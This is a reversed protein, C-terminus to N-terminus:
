ESYIRRSHKPARNGGRLAVSSYSRMAPNVPNEVITGESDLVVHEYRMTDFVMKLGASALKPEPIPTQLGPDQYSPDFRFIEKATTKLMDQQEVITVVNDQLKSVTDMTVGGAPSYVTKILKTTDAQLSTLDSKISDAQRLYAALEAEAKASSAEQQQASSVSQALASSVTEAVASSAVQAVASSAQQQQASSDAQQVASSEQQQQASSDAQQVASSAQQQQASSDAQQVASSAQQQQASSDRQQFSSSAAQQQASSDAQQVASSAAQQVSSSAQQQQASSDRQQFSSSAAQQQASSDAQQVASSAAQQVSSSARQQQASSDRQKYSSSAAQQQASSDAQQQASSDAQQVSSSAQQQQASSDRQQVSSSAQQQQASSDAQQVSSSAQQKQASSDAQQIASSETQQRASSVFQATASSAQAGSIAQALASSVTQAVASSAVQALASSATQAVASSALQKFASSAKRNAALNLEIPPIYTMRENPVFDTQPGSGRDDVVVFVVGDKSGKIIWTIMDRDAVGELGFYYANFAIPVTNDILIATGINLPWVKSEFSANFINGYRGGAYSIQGGGDPDVLPKYTTPDVAIATAAPNWPVPVRTKNVFFGAIAAQQGPATGRTGLVTILIYRYTVTAAEIMSHLASSAVQQQASSDAQQVASSVVQAVASSAQQAVASSQQAGSIAQALASSAQQATSPGVLFASDPFNWQGELTASNIFFPKRTTPDIYKKYTPGLTADVAQTLTSPNPPPNPHVWRTETSLVNVYYPLNKANSQLKVWGPPLFGVTTDALVADSGLFVPPSPHEYQAVGTSSNAYFYRRAVTDFYAQWPASVTTDSPLAVDTGLLGSGGGKQVRPRISPDVVDPVINGNSDIVIHDKRMPDYLKKLGLSEVYSDSVPTQLTRDQYKPSISFIVESVSSLAQWQGEIDNMLGKIIQEAADKESQSSTPSYLIAIQANIDARIAQVTKMIEDKDAVPGILAQIQQASSASQQVASSVRQAVASSAVQALASSARQAVASSQQAGSISQALASSASQAVASSQQAGSISQALASSAQQTVASSQQAGSIAQAVASSATQAIASSVQQKQASSDRQEFSASAAQEQASSDAQQRASSINQALASSAIQAVASSQQAGSISQALASSAVQAVASSAQAGSISQALASSVNQAVASSAQQAVASSQQAGSIAQAVASSAQQATSPGADFASDPFNWQVELTDSNVYFPKRTTPDTYKKYPPKLTTDVVPTLGSPDPPPNPNIWRTELSLVYLYYPLNKSASQLKVWGSSLSSTTADTVVVDSGSFVPPSPHEYQAVRTSTNVYLYNRAVSDFYSVWPASVTPDTVLVLATTATAGSVTGGYQDLRELENSM